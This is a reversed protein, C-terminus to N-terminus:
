STTDRQRAHATTSYPTVSPTCYTSVGSAWVKRHGNDGYGKLKLYLHKPNYRYLEVYPVSEWLKTWEEQYVRYIHTHTQIYIYICVCIYICIYIYILLRSLFLFSPPSASSQAPGPYLCTALHQSCLSSSESEMFHQSCKSQSLVHQYRLFLESERSGKM